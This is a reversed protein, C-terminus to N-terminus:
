GIAKLRQSYYAPDHDELAHTVGLALRIPGRRCWKIGEASSSHPYHETEQM